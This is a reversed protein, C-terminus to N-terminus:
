GTTNGYRRRYKQHEDVRDDSICQCKSRLVYLQCVPSPLLIAIWHRQTQLLGASVLTPCKRTKCCEGSHASQTSFSAHLREADSRAPFRESLQRNRKSLQGGMGIQPVINQTEATWCGGVSNKLVIPENLGKAACPNPTRM